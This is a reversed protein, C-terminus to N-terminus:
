RWRLCYRDQENDLEALMFVKKQRRARKVELTRVAGVGIGATTETPLYDM